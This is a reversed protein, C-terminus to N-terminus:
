RLRLFCILAIWLACCCSWSESTCVRECEGGVAEEDRALMLLGWEEGAGSRPLSYEDETGDLLTAVMLDSRLTTMGGAGM